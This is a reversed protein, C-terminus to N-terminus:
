RHPPKQGQSGQGGSPHGGGSQGGSPQSHSPQNNAPPPTNQSGHVEQHKDQWGQQKATDSQQEQPTPQRVPPASRATPSPTQARPPEPPPAPRQEPQPAPREEPQPAPREEPQPAPRQEPQPAPQEVNGRGNNPENGRGEGNQPPASQMGGQQSPPRYGQGPQGGTTAAGNSHFTQPKAPARVAVTTRSVVTAPPRATSVRSEGIVSAHTPEAAPGARNVPASALDREPVNVVNRSVDRGGVFTDHAVVTVGGNVHQNVYTVNRANNHFVDVVTNRDVVTNTVNIRTMYGMSVHYTPMFVERPGLPFWAIGGGGGIVISFSFGPEGGVWGVLAPAYVPRVGAAYPGPVWGWRGGFVAWRGYHFPAFGWPESDVWTWGWPAIWVWHGFRYPAWGVAVSSPFWVTGYDAEPAWTGNADFEDSGTTEPSLYQPAPASNEMADRQASWQEFDTQPLSDADELSYDLTDTGTFTAQQDPTINWSRGGGTVQGAGAVVTVVTVDKDPDADIEYTGPQMLTVALNPADVEFADNPDLQRLRVIVSGASVQLQIVNDSLNLFSVGTNHGLRVSTSGVEMEVWGDTDSWLQDGTTLPRNVEAAVWDNDGGGAPQFSVSGQLFNLDAVRGPPDDATAGTGSQAPAPPPASQAAATIPARLLFAIAALALAAFFFKRSKM